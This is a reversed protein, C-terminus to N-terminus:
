TVKALAADRDDEIPIINAFGSIAFIERIPDSLSCVAFKGNRRNVSKVVLLIARLGASSIYTLNAADLVVATADDGIAAELGSQFQSANLGDVRPESAKVILAGNTIESTIEM